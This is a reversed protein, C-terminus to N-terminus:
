KALTCNTKKKDPVFDVGFQHGGGGGGRGGGLGRVCARVGSM